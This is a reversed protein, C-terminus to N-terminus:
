EVFAAEDRLTGRKVGRGGPILTYNMRRLIAIEFRQQHCYTPSRKLTANLGEDYCNKYAWPNGMFKAQSLMHFLIHNKPVYDRYEGFIVHFRKLNGFLVKYSLDAHFGVNEFYSNRQFLVGVCSMSQCHQAEHRDIMCNVQQTSLSLNVGNTAMTKVLNDLCKAAELLPPGDEGLNAIHKQLMAEVLLLIGWTEAAKAKLRPNDETGLMSVRRDRLRSLAKGPHAKSWDDYRSARASLCRHMFLNTKDCM